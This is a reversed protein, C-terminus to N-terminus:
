KTEALHVSCLFITVVPPFPKCCDVSKTHIAVANHSTAARAATM